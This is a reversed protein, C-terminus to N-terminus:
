GPQPLVYQGQAARDRRPALPSKCSRSQQWAATHQPERSLVARSPGGRAQGLAEVASGARPEERRQARTHKCHWLLRMARRYRCPVVVAQPQKARLHLRAQNEAAHLPCGGEPPPVGQGASTDSDPISRHASGAGPTRRADQQACVDDPHLLPCSLSRPAGPWIQPQSCSRCGTATRVKRQERRSPDRGLCTIQLTLTQQQQAGRNPSVGLLGGAQPQHPAPSPM